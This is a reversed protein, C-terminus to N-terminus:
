MFTASEISINSKDIRIYAYFGESVTLNKSVQLNSDLSVRYKLVSKPVQRMKIFTTVDREIRLQERAKLNFTENYLTENSLSIVEVKLTYPTYDENIVYFLPLGKDLIVPLLVILVLLLIVFLVPVWILKEKQKM